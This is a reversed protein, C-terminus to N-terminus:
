DVPRLNAQTAADGSTDDAPTNRYRSDPARQAALVLDREGLFRGVLRRPDLVNEPALAPNAVRVGEQAMRRVADANASQTLAVLGAADPAADPASVAVSAQLADTFAGGGEVRKRPTTHAELRQRERITMLNILQPSLGM